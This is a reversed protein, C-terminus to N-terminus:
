VCSDAAGPSVSEVIRGTPDFRISCGPRWTPSPHGGATVDLLCRALNECALARLGVYSTTLRPNIEIVRDDAGDGRPGLLVDVGVYGHLGPVARIARAALAIARTAFETEIPLVGGLYDFRGDESLIQWAPPLAVARHPGVLFSVSAARGPVRPQLIADDGLGSSRAHHLAAALEDDSHVLFTALSGAGHRPKLVAPFSFSPSLPCPVPSLPFVLFAKEHGFETQARVDAFSQAGVAPSIAGDSSGESASRALTQRRRGRHNGGPNRM